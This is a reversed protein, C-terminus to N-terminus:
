HVSDITYGADKLVGTLLEGPEDSVVYAISKATDVKVSEIADLRRLLRKIVEADKDDITQGLQITHVLNNSTNTDFFTNVLSDVLGKEGNKENM